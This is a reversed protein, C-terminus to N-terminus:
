RAETFEEQEMILVWHALHSLILSIIFIWKPMKKESKNSIKTAFSTFEVDGQRGKKQFIINEVSFCVLQPKQM